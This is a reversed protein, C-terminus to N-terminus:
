PTVVVTEPVTVTAEVTAANDTLDEETSTTTADATNTVPYDGAAADAPLDATFAFDLTTSDGAGLAGLSCIAIVTGPATAEGSLVCEPPLLTATATATDGLASLDITFTDTLEVDEAVADGNNTVIVEFNLTANGDADTEVTTDGTKTVTLDAVPVPTVPAPATVVTEFEILNNADDSEETDTSVAASNNVTISDEAGLDGTVDLDFSFTFDASAGADLTGVDCIIVDADVVTTDLSCGTPLPTVATLEATVGVLDGVDVTITDTLEVGEAAVAGNNTVSVTYELTASGDDALVVEADGDKTVELDATGPEPEIPGPEEGGDDGCVVVAEALVEYDFPQGQHEVTFNLLSTTEDPSLAGDGGLDADTVEPEDSSVINNTSDAPSFSFPQEYTNGTVNTFSATIELINGPLFVFDFAELALEEEAVLVRPEEDGCAEVQLARLAAAGSNTLTVSGAGPDVSFNFGPTAATPQADQSCAALFMLGASFLLPQLRKM